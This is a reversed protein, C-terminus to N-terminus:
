IEAPLERAPEPELRERVVADIYVYATTLAVFPTALAYVLGAVINLLEFPADTLVILVSGVIPGLALAIGAGVVVLSVVNLWRGRVLDSSRKLAGLASANELEVV